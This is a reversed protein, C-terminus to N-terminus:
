FAVALAAAEAAIDETATEAETTTDTSSGTIDDGAALDLKYQEYEARKDIDYYLVANDAELQLTIAVGVAGFTYFLVILIPYILKFYDDEADRYLFTATMFIADVLGFLVFGFSMIIDKLWYTYFGM